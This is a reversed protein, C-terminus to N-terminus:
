TADQALSLIVLGMYADLHVNIRLLLFTCSVTSSSRARRWVPLCSATQVYHASAPVLATSLVHVYTSENRAQIVLDQLQVYTFFRM